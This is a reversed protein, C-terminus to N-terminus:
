RGSDSRQGREDAESAQPADVHPVHQSAYTGVTPWPNSSCATTMGLGLMCLVPRLTTM